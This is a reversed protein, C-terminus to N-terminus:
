MMEQLAVQRVRKRTIGYRRLLRCITSPAVAINTISLIRKCIEELYVTPNEMIIGIVLLENHEDLARLEPRAKRRAPEVDGTRAFQQYIRHATSTAINLRNAIEHFHLEMGIRQYVVRWRIDVSYARKRGPEAPMKLKLSGAQFKLHIRARATSRTCCFNDRFGYPSRSIRVSSFYATCM